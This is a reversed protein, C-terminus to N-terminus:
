HVCALWFVLASVTTMQTILMACRSVHCWTMTHHAHRMHTHLDFSNAYCSLPYRLLKLAALQELLLVQLHNDLLPKVIREM